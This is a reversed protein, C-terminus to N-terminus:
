IQYSYPIFRFQNQTTANDENHVSLNKSQERRPYMDSKMMLASGPGTIELSFKTVTTHKFGPPYSVTQRFFSPWVNMSFTM